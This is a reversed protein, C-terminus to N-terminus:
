LVCRGYSHLKSEKGLSTGPKYGMKQLLSFGKNSQSIATSLGEELREEQIKKTSKFRHQNASDKASKRKEMQAQRKSSHSFLLGPRM